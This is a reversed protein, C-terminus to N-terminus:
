LGLVKQIMGTSGPLRHASEPGHPRVCPEANFGFMDEARFRTINQDWRTGAESSSPDPV